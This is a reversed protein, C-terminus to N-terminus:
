RLADFPPHGVLAAHDAVDLLQHAPDARAHAVGAARGDLLQARARLEDLDAGGPHALRVDVIDLDHLFRWIVADFLATSNECARKPSCSRMRIRSKPACYVWSM